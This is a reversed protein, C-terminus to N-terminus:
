KQDDDILGVLETTLIEINIKHKHAIELISKSIHSTTEFEGTGIILTEIRPQILSFLILSDTNIRDASEVHWSFVTQPFVIIPGIVQVQENM